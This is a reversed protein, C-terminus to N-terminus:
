VKVVCGASARILRNYLALYEGRKPPCQIYIHRLDLEDARRLLAYLSHNQEAYDGHKGTILVRCKFKDSDDASAFVGDNVDSTENVYSIFREKDADVLIVQASPSYHKYKMGPSSPKSGAASPDTVARDIEVRDCVERLMDETVAGPRLIKCYGDVISVVTSEVGIDCEGGDIIMDCRGNLDHMVHAASTPSPGGSRNASPAAIPVGAKEILALATPNTPCRVAVTNLGGSVSDPIIDRKPMIVTVPGPMFREAIRYYLESTYAIRDADGVDSIHVILPNDSPRGKAKYIKAAACESLASAGLGYVTETPFAVLGGRRIIEGARCLVDDGGGDTIKCYETNILDKEM